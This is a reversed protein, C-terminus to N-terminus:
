AALVLNKAHFFEEGFRPSAIHIIALDVAAIGIVIIEAASGKGGIGHENKTRTASEKALGTVFAGAGGWPFEKVSGM